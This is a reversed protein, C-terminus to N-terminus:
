LFNHKGFSLPSTPTGPEVVGKGNCVDRSGCNWAACVLSYLLSRPSSSTSNCVLNLQSVYAACHRAIRILRVFNRVGCFWLLGIERVADVSEALFLLNGALSLTEYVVVLV